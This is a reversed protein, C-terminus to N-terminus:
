CMRVSEITTDINLPILTQYYCVEWIEMDSPSTERNQNIEELKGTLPFFKETKKCIIRILSTM